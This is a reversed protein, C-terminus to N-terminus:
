PYPTGPSSGDPPGLSLPAPRLCRGHRTVHPPQFKVRLGLSPPPARLTCLLLPPGRGGWARRRGGVSRDGALPPGM